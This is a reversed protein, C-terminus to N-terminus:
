VSTPNRGRRWCTRRSPTAEPAWQLTDTAKAPMTRFRRVSGEGVRFQYEAGPELGTLECRHVRYITDPFDKLRPAATQWDAEAAGVKGYLVKALSEEEPGIWQITMTTTPDGQWTLFISDNSGPPPERREPAEDARKASSKEQSFAIDAVAASAVGGLAATLFQRRGARIDM